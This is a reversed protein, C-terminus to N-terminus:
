SWLRLVVIKAPGAAGRVTTALVIRGEPDHAVFVREGNGGLDADYTQKGGPGWAEDFAGTPLLRAVGIRKDPVTAPAAVVLRGEADRSSTPPGAPLSEGWDFAVVGAGGFSGDPTGGATLLVATAQRRAGSSTVGTLLVRGQELPHVAHAEGAPFSATVVAVGDGAHFSTDPSGDGNVRWAVMASGGAQASTGACVIKGDPAVAVASCVDDDGVRASPFGRLLNHVHEFGDRDCPARM